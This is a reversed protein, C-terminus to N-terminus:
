KLNLHELSLNNAEAKSLYDDLFKRFCPGEIRNVNLNLIKLQPMAVLAPTLKELDENEMSNESLDLEELKGKISFLMEKLNETRRDSIMFLKNSGLKLVKLNQFLSFHDKLLELGHLGIWNHSINLHELHEFDLIMQFYLCFEPEIGNYELNLEKICPRKCAAIIDGLHDAVRIGKLELKTLNPFM